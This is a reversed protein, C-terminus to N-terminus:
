PAESAPPLDGPTFSPDPSRLARRAVRRVPAAAPRVVVRAAPAVAVSPAPAPAMPRRAVPRSRRRRDTTRRSRARALRRRAVRREARRAAAMRRRQRAVADGRDKLAREATAGSARSSRDGGERTRPAGTVIALSLVVLLALVGAGVLRRPDRPRRGGREANTSAYHRRGPRRPPRRALERDLSLAAAGIAERGVTAGEDVAPTGDAARDFWDDDGDGSAVVGQAIAPPADDFFSDLDGM